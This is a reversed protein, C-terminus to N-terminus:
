TPLSDSHDCNTAADLLATARAVVFAPRGFGSVSFVASDRCKATVSYPHACRQHRRLRATSDATVSQGMKTNIANRSRLHKNKGRTPSGGAEGTDGKSVGVRSAGALVQVHVHATLAQM